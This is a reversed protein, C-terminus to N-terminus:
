AVTTTVGRYRDNLRGFLGSASGSAVGARRTYPARHLGHGHIM